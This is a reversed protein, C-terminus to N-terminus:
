DWICCIYMIIEVIINYMNIITCQTSNKVYVRYKLGYKSIFCIEKDEDFTLFENVVELNDLEFVKDRVWFILRTPENLISIKDLTLWWYVNFTRHLQVFTTFDTTARHIKWEWSSIDSFFYLYTTWSALKLKWIWRVINHNSTWTNLTYKLAGATESWWNVYIKWNELCVIIWSLWFKELNDMYVIDDDFIWGTDVLKPTAYVCNLKKRIEANEWSYFSNAPWKYIDDWEWWSFGQIDHIRIEEM